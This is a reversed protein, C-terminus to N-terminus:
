CIKLSVLSYFQKQEQSARQLYEASYVYTHEWYPVKKILYCGNEKQHNDLGIFPQEQRDNEISHIQNKENTTTSTNTYLHELCYIKNLNENQKEQKTAHNLLGTIIQSIFLSHTCSKQKNEYELMRKKLLLTWYRYFSSESDCAEIEKKIFDIEKNLQGTSHLLHAQERSSIQLELQRKHINTNEQQIAHKLLGAIIQSIILSNHHPNQKEKCRDANTKHPLDKSYCNEITKNSNEIHNNKPEVNEKEICTESPSSISSLIDEVNIENKLLEVVQIIM